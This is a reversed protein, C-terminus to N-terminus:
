IEFLPLYAAFNEAHYEKWGGIILAKITKEDKGKMRSM